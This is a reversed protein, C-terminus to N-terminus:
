GRVIFADIYLEDQHPISSLVPTVQPAPQVTTSISMSSTICRYSRTSASFVAVNEPCLPPFQRPVVLPGRCISPSVTAKAAPSRDWAHLEEYMRDGFFKGTLAAVPDLAYPRFIPLVEPPTPDRARRKGQCRADFHEKCSLECPGADYDCTVQLQEGAVALLDQLRHGQVRALGLPQVQHAKQWERPVTEARRCTPATIVM